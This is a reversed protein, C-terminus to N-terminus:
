LALGSHFARFTLATNWFLYMAGLLKHHTRFTMIQKGTAEHNKWTRPLVAHCSLYYM